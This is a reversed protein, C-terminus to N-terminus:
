KIVGWATVILDSGTGNADGKLRLGKAATGGSGSAYASELVTDATGPVVRANATLAAVAMTVFDVPTGNTDQIKVNATTAWVTAGNVRAIFGQLYVKKGAPVDADALLSVPTVAAASTITATRHFPIESLKAPTVAADAIDETTIADEDPFDGGELLRVREALRANQLAPSSNDVAQAQQETLQEM